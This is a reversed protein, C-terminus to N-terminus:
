KVVIGWTCPKCPPNNRIGFHSPYLILREHDIKLYHWMIQSFPTVSVVFLNVELHGVVPWSELGPTWLYSAPSGVMARLPLKLTNIETDWRRVDLGACAVSGVEVLASQLLGPLAERLDYFTLTWSFCNIPVSTARLAAYRCYFPSSCFDIFGLFTSFKIERM